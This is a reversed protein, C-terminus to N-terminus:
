ITWGNQAALAFLLCTTAAMVVPTYTCYDYQMQKHDVLNGRIVWRAKYYKPDDPDLEDKINFVWRGPYAQTGPPMEEKQVLDWVNKNTLKEMEHEM